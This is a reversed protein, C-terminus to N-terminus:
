AAIFNYIYIYLVMGYICVYLFFAHQTKKLFMKETIYNHQTADHQTQTANRRTTTIIFEQDKKKQMKANKEEKKHM